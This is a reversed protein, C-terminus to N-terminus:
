RSLADVAITPAREKTYPSPNTQVVAPAAIGGWDAKWGFNLQKFM